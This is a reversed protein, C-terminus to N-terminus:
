RAEPTRAVVAVHVSAAGAQLLHRAAASVTTGTTMIDDVVLIHWGEIHHGPTVAFAKHMNAKRMDRDLGTQHPTPLPRQLLDSLLPTNLHAAVPRALELAQNFGRERLRATHLPVPVVADLGARLAETATCRRALLSGLLAGAELAAHFKFQLMARRLLGDYGAVFTLSRWPPPTALCAACPACPLAEDAFLEGCHLCYGGTRPRLAALCDPCAPPTHPPAPTGHVPCPQACLACRTIDLGAEHRIRQWLHRIFTAM